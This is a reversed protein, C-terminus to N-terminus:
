PEDTPAPSFTATKTKRTVNVPVGYFSSRYVGLEEYENTM